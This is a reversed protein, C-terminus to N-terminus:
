PGEAARVRIEDVLTGAAVPLTVARMAGSGAPVRFPTDGTAARV